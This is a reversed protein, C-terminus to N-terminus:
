TKQIDELKKISVNKPKNKTQGVELNLKLNFFYQFITYCCQFTVTLM